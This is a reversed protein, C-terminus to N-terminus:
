FGTLKGSDSQLRPSRQSDLSVLHFAAFVLLVAFPAMHHKTGSEFISHMVLLYLFPYLLPSIKDLNVKEQTVKKLGLVICTLSTLWFVNSADSGIRFALSRPWSRDLEMQSGDHDKGLGRFIAWYSGTEDDSMFYVAKRISLKLMGVPHAQIWQLGWEIGKKNTELESIHPLPIKGEAIWLGTALENNSRYFVSGGNTSIGIFQGNFVVYNRIIWPAVVLVFGIATVIGIKLGDHGKIWLRDGYAFPLLLPLLLLAPQALSGIGLSIGGVFACCTNWKGNTPSSLGFSLSAFAILITAITLNEKMPISTLFIHSPWIALLFLAVVATRKDFTHESLRYIAASSLVYLCLNALILTEFGRGFLILFPALYFPYGPPWNAQMGLADVYSQGAAISNALGVYYLGDSTPYPIALIAFLIRLVIGFVVISL